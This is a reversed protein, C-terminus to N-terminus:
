GSPFVRLLATTNDIHIVSKVLTNLILILDIPHILRDELEVLAGNEVASHAGPLNETHLLLLIHDIHRFNTLPPSAIPCRDSIIRVLPFIRSAAAGYEIVFVFRGPFVKTEITVSLAVCQYDSSGVNFNNICRCHTFFYFRVSRILLWEHWWFLLISLNSAHSSGGPVPLSLGKLWCYLLFYLKLFFFFSLHLILMPRTPIVDDM